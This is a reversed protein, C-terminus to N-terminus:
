EQNMAGCVPCRGKSKLPSGCRGCVYQPRSHRHYVAIAAAIYCILLPYGIYYLTTISFVVYAVACVAALGVLYMVAEGFPLLRRVEDVAAVGVIIIAWVSAIFVALLPSESFPNLSPHFYFHRWEDAAFLQLTAYFTAATAVLIVLLTPYFSPIDNFHVIHSQRRMLARIVIVFAVLTILILFIILHTNSFTSIFISIPDDPVVKDLLAQETTWGFESSATAVKVWVSDGFIDFSSPLTVIDAVVLPSDHYAYFSDVMMGGVVEEPQQSYLMLSDSAVLFNYNESYHHERAFTLSDIQSPTLDRADIQRPSRGVYCSSFLLLCFAFIAGIKRGLCPESRHLRGRLLSTAVSHNIM